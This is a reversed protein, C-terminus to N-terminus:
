SCEIDWWGSRGGSDGERKMDGLADEIRRKLGSWEKEIGNGDVGRCWVEGCIGKEEAGDM